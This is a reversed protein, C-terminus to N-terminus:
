DRAARGQGLDCGVHRGEGRVQALAQRGEAEVISPPPTLVEWGSASGRGSSRTRATRSSSMVAMSRM